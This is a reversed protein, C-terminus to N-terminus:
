YVPKKSSIFSPALLGFFFRKCIDHAVNLDNAFDLQRMKEESFSVDLDIISGVQELGNKLIKLNNGIQLICGYDNETTNVRVFTQENGVNCQDLHVGLKSITFVNENFFDIYRLGVRVFSNFLNKEKLLDIINLIEKSFLEWGPYIEVSLILVRPGIQLNFDGKSLVNCPQHIFHPNTNRVQEPMQNIPLEKCNDYDPALISYVSGFVANLPINPEFRIEILSQIISSPEIKKPILIERFQAFLDSM